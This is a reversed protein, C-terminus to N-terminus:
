FFHHISSRSNNMAYNNSIYCSYKTKCFLVIPSHCNSVHGPECVTRLRWPRKLAQTKDCCFGHVTFVLFVNTSSNTSECLGDFNQIPFRTRCTFFPLYAHNLVKHRVRSRFFPQNLPLGAEAIDNSRMQKLADVISWPTGGFPCWGVCQGREVSLRHALFGVRSRRCQYQRHGFDVFNIPGDPQASAVLPSCPCLLICRMVFVVGLKDVRFHFFKETGIVLLNSVMTLTQKGWRALNRIVLWSSTSLDRHAFAAM